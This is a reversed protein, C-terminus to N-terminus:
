IETWKYGVGWVTQINQGLHVLKKRISTIQVDISRETVAYDQGRVSEILEKRTFVKEPSSLLTFLIDFETVKLDIRAGLLTCTRTKQDLELGSPSTASMNANETTDVRRLVSKIKALLVRPSFPKTMYDDAGLELATIIDVDETLASTIIVPLKKNRSEYRIYKLIDIGNTGPLMIDLIILDYKNNRLMDLAEDGNEASETEFGGNKLHFLILTRIDTEDEVVLIKMILFSVM